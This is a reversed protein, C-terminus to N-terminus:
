KFMMTTAAILVVFIAAAAMVFNAVEIHMVGENSRKPITKMVEAIQKEHQLMADSKQM